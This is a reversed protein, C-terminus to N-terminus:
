INNIAESIRRIGEEVKERPTAVNFRMFGEGGYGFFDGDTLAIKAKKIMFNQLEENDYGLCNFDLWVLYTGEPKTVKVDPINKKVYDVLFDINGEVYELLQELWEEGKRYSAISAVQGFCNNRTIDIKDFAKELKDFDEKESAIIVSTQIGALNFTKTPAMLTITLREAESSISAFPIHKYGKLIIDSHIEDSIVKINRRVVIEALKELEKKTWVRGIPNHPNCLIFLKGGEDIKKEFDEFDMTYYGTEDKILPNLLVKRDNNLVNIEFPGYVPPQIIVKDNENTFNQIAFAISPVVGPSYMLWETKINWDHRKKCWDVISQKYDNVEVTYGYIGQELREKLAAIIPDATKFDMDAVWMPLLDSSGFVDELADWKVSQNNSRDHIEDFNYKM